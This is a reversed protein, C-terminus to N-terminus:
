PRQVVAIGADDDDLGKTDEPRSTASHLDSSIPRGANADFGTPAPGTAIPHTTVTSALGASAAPQQARSPASGVPVDLRTAYVVALLGTGVLAIILRSLMTRMSDDEQLITSLGRQEPRGTTYVCTGAIFLASLVVAARCRGSRVGWRHGSSHGAGAVPAILDAATSM